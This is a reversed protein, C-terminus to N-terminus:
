INVNSLLIYIRYRILILFSGLGWVILNLVLDIGPFSYSNKLLSGVIFFVAILLGVSFVSKFILFVDSATTAWSKQLATFPDSGDLIIFFDFLALRLYLYIGPIILLVLGISVAMNMLISALLYFPLYKTGKVLAQYWSVNNNANNANGQNDQNGPNDKNIESALVIFGCQFVAGAIFSVLLMISFKNNDAIGVLVFQNLSLELLYWCVVYSIIYRSFLLYNNRFFYFSDVLVKNM